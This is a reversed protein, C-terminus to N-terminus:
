CARLEKIRAPDIGTSNSKRYFSSVVVTGLIMLFTAALLLLTFGSSRLLKGSKM